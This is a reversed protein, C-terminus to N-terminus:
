CPPVVPANTQRYADNDAMPTLLAGDLTVSLCTLSDGTLHQFLLELPLESPSVPWREEWRPHNVRAALYSLARPEAEVEVNVVDSTTHEGDLATLKLRYFGAAAFTATTDVARADAFSAQGSGSVMSWLSTVNGPPSPRGDDSVMGDLVAPQGLTTTRAPGADVAPPRNALGSADLVIHDQHVEVLQPGGYSFEVEVTKLGDGAPLAWPISEAYTRWPGWAEGANRLRMQKKPVSYGEAWLTLTVTRAATVEDNNNIFIASPRNLEFQRLVQVREPTDPNVTLRLNLVENAPAPAPVWQAMRSNRVPTASNILQTWQQPKFGTATELTYRRLGEGSVTGVVELTQHTPSRDRSEYTIPATLNITLAGRGAARAANVLGFGFDRDRGPTGLDDATSQLHMRVQESTWDPHLAFVLGAVGSVYPAAMSTGSSFTLQENLPVGGDTAQARLSLISNEAFVGWDGGPAALEIKQGFNSFVVRTDHPTTASVAIVNEEVAPAHWCWRDNLSCSENGAAAVLLAGKSVAYEVADHILISTGYAGWSNNIVKAGMDAAYRLAAAADDVTGAADGPLFQLPMLQVEWMTGAIDTANNGRAGIIGSVHTGHGSADSPDNDSQYFDWGHWDDIYGNGEDDVANTKKDRGQADTGIEGSNEWINGVLDRHTFDIGTDVVAVIVSHAGTTAEWAAPAQIRKLGWQDDYPQGIAGSSAFFPDNPAMAAEAVLLPEVHEFLNTERLAQIAERTPALAAEDEDTVVARKPEAEERETSTEAQAETMPDGILELEVASTIWVPREPGKLDIMLWRDIEPIERANDHAVRAKLLDTLRAEGEAVPQQPMAAVFEVKEMVNEIVAFDPLTLQAVSDYIGLVDGDSSPSPSVQTPTPTLPEQTPTAELPAEATPSPEPTATPERTALPEVSPTIVPTASPLDELEPEQTPPQDAPLETPAPTEREEDELKAHIARAQAETLRVLVKGTVIKQETSGAIRVQGEDATDLRPPTTQTRLFPSLFSGVVFMLVLTIGIVMAIGLVSGRTM